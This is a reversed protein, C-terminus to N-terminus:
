KHFQLDCTELKPKGKVCRFLWTCPGPLNASLQCVPQKHWTTSSIFSVQFWQSQSGDLQFVNSVMKRVHSNFRTQFFLMKHTTQSNLNSNWVTQICDPHALFPNPSAAHAYGEDFPLNFLLSHQFVIHHQQQEWQMSTRIFFSFLLWQLNPSIHLNWQFM